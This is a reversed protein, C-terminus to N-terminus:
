VKHRELTVNVCWGCYHGSILKIKSLSVGINFFLILMKGACCMLSSYYNHM